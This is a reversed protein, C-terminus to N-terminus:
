RVDIPDIPERIPNLKTPKTYVTSDRYRWDYRKAIM